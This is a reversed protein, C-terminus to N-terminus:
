LTEIWKNIIKKIEQLQEKQRFTHEGDKIVHLEKKGPLETFLLEQHALPTTHDKEGVILLTPMTLQNARSLLDYQLRDKMESWPIRRFFGPKSNSEKVLWGSKEWNDLEEKPMNDRSLQGSVVTSIPALAKVRRPFNAAYLGVCIGGLSHGVLIFPERYWEQERAWAIIDELDQYYSTISAEEITGESEGLTNATDFTVVSYKQSLFAEAFARIHPQEKFGGLGHMIFALGRSDGVLELVTALKQGKRNKIFLKM